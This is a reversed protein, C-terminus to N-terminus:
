KRKTTTNHKKIQNHKKTYRKNSTTKKHKRTTKKLNKHKRTKNKRTKNQKRKGGSVTMKLEPEPAIELVPRYENPTTERILGLNFYDYESAYYHGNHEMNVGARLLAILLKLDDNDLLQIPKEEGDNNEVEITYLDRMAELIPQEEGEIFVSNDGFAIQRVKSGSLKNDKLYPIRKSEFRPITYCSDINRDTKTETIFRPTGILEGTSDIDYVELCAAERSSREKADEELGFFYGSNSIRGGTLLSNVYMISPITGNADKNVIINSKYINSYKPVDYAQESLNKIMKQLFYQKQEPFLPNQYKSLKVNMKGDIVPFSKSTIDPLNVGTFRKEGKVKKSKPKYNYSSSLYVNATAGEKAAVNAMLNVMELHGPTPPNMRGVMFFHKELPASM